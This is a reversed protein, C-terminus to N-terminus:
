EAGLALAASIEMILAVRARRTPAERLNDEEAYLAQTLLADKFIAWQAPELDIEFPGAGQELLQRDASTRIEAIALGTRSTRPNGTVLAGIAESVARADQGFGIKM